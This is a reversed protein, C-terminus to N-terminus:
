ETMENVRAPHSDRYPRDNSIVVCLVMTAANGRVFRGQPIDM